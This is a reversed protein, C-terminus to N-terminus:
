DLHLPKYEFRKLDHEIDIYKKGCLKGGAIFTEQTVDALCFDPMVFTNKEDEREFEFDVVILGKLNDQFVDIEARKGDHVYFYRRKIIRKGEVKSLAEFEKQTLPITEETQKSYDGEIPQKKTIEYKHGKRRIRLVPHAESAPIYIDVMDEYECKDLTDPIFKILYTKELEVM